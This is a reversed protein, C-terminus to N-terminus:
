NGNAAIDNITRGGALVSYVSQTNDLQSPIAGAALFISKLTRSAWTSNSSSATASSYILAQPGAPTGDGVFAVSSGHSQGTSLIIANPTAGALVAHINTVVFLDSNNNLTARTNGSTTATKSIQGALMNGDCSLYLHNIANATGTTVASTLAFMPTGLNANMVYVELDTASGAGASADSAIMCLIGKADPGAPSAIGGPSAAFRSEYNWCNCDFQEFGINASHPSFPTYPARTPSLATGSGINTATTNFGVLFNRNAATFTLSTDIQDSIYYIFRGDFSKFTAWFDQQSNTNGIPM